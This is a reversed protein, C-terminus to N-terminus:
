FGEQSWPPGAFSAGSCRLMACLAQALTILPLAAVKKTPINWNGLKLTRGSLGQVTNGDLIEKETSTDM